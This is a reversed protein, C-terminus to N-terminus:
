SPNTYRIERPRGSEKLIWPLHMGNYRPVDHDPGIGAEGRCNIGIWPRMVSEPGNLAVSRCKQGDRGKM